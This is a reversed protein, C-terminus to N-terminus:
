CGVDDLCSLDLFPCSVNSYSNAIYLYIYIFSINYIYTYLHTDQVNPFLLVHYIGRPGIIQQDQMRELNVHQQSSFLHRKNFVDTSLEQRGKPHVLSMSYFPLGCACIYVGFRHLIVHTHTHIINQKSLWPEDKYGHSFSEMKWGATPEPFWLREGRVPLCSGCVVVTVVVLLFSAM